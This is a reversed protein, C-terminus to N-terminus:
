SWWAAAPRAAGQAAPGAKGWANHVQMSRGGSGAAADAGAADRHCHRLNSVRHVRRRCGHHGGCRGAAPRSRIRSHRARVCRCLQNRVCGSRLSLLFLPSVGLAAESGAQEPTKGCRVCVVALGCGVLVSLYFSGARGALLWARVSDAAYRRANGEDANLVAAAEAAQKAAAAAAKTDGQNSRQLQISGPAAAVHAPLISVGTSSRCAPSTSSGTCTHQQQQQQSVQSFLQELLAPLSESQVSQM